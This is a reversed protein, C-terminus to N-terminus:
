TLHSTSRSVGNHEQNMQNQPHCSTTCTFLAFNSPNTHCDTCADWEGDHQGSYIPFYLGDHNFTSPTWATQSHCPECDTPFQASAHNPNTTQNYEATHCAFCTNPTGSYNGEHCTFCSNAIAAHAGQLVYYQNHIGFTAPQWDPNTTHCTECATPIALASHNPNTSQNYNNIHCGSCQNTTTNYNGEHCAFCDGSVTAHAGTLPYYQSHTAFTAPKWDPNTTHCTACDTSIGLVNHNPNTTQNFNVSHCAVCENPTGTYGASHCGNCEVTLHAGTLPFASANHNFSGEASGTPHCAFCADNNYLYGTVGNHQQNMEGQPHCATACAFLAYNSPNTHCDTCADWEGNHEGSYIPFYQGDHDFTSPSWAEADHCTECETSFQASAHPPNTTQNYADAHCAFCTNPSNIYNGEHCKFCDTAVRGHGGTLPFNENHNPYLAPQWDPETTHCTECDTGISNELHSPNTAENFSKTHCEYCDTTTGAYGTPHCGICETTIHAGTLPFNSTNHNFSGEGSGTPHCELCAASNYLYGQVDGHEEDMDAQNHDHCGICSNEAYNATNTHCDSCLNWENDHKGSYIPFFQADHNKFEAPKWDPKTTHCEKCDTSFDASLHNPNTATNYDPQHCSICDPSINYNNNEHCKKCDNVAHGETLPFFTHSNMNGAWEFATMLHCVSCNEPPYDAPNHKPNTTADYNTRHCDYCDVGLPEFRLLSGVPDSQAAPSLNRHCDYCDATAHPGVLPFRSQQHLQTTNTVIWSNPTHCRECELGVTQEHIDTHCSVCESDAKAFVLSIHCMKCDVDKHQGELSFSTAKNHEFTYAGKELKWGKPNHCDSCSIRLDDGHPSQSFLKFSIALFVILSSLNRM